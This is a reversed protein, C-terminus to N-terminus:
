TDPNQWYKAARGGHGRSVPQASQLDDVGPAPRVRRLAHQRDARAHRRAARPTATSRSTPRCARTRSTRFQRRHTRPVEAIRASDAEAGLRTSSDLRRGAAHISVARQEAPRRRPHGAGGAPVARARRSPRAQGRLRRDGPRGLSASPRAAEAVRLRLRFQDAAAPSASSTDVAPDEARDRHVAAAEGCRRSRSARTPRSTATSAAPGAAPLLGQPRHHLSLRQASPTALLDADDAAPHALAWVLTRDYGRLM